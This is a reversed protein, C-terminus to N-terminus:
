RAAETVRVLGVDVYQGGGTQKCYVAIVNPGPKLARRGAESLPALQYETVHGSAKAALVGNVYVEVDEDHHLLLHLADPVEALEITRRLWVDPTDWRTRVVAGPTGETGFGGPGSKWASDDFGPREWGDAPKTTTYRWTQGTARSTPVVDTVVPPPGHLRRNAAAVREADMKVVARDYTLLGNVEIEVDTTQTYVAASLGKGVLPRLNVVLALYAATLEEPTQYSRYGWNREDQWTHGKVPLGLGGFEGLVAARKPEPPPMGPGPYAHIDHVDGVGRDTWGSASNVLRSPDYDKVWRAVRATDFQGWGENFPVWMIISPHHRLVDIM